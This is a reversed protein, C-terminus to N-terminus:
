LCFLSPSFPHCFLFPQMFDQRNQRTNWQDHDQQDATKLDTCVSVPIKIFFFVFFILYRIFKIHLHRINHLHCFEHHRIQPAVLLFQTNLRFHFSIYLIKEILLVPKMHCIHLPKKKASKCDPPSRDDYQKKWHRCKHKHFCVPLSQDRLHILPHQRYKQCKGRHCSKQEWSVKVFIKHDKM